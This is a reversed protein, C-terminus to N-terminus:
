VTRAQAERRQERSIMRALANLEEALLDILDDASVLGVLAGAADCVPLRRVGRSRMLEITESVGASEQVAFLEPTMVEEVSLTEPDLGKAVIGVAIDRDTVMGAPVLKGGSEEAVVLAGVHYERMLQAAQRVTENRRIFVVQRSCIEGIAM